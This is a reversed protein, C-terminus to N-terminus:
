IEDIGLIPYDVEEGAACFVVTNVDGIGAYNLQFTKQLEPAILTRATEIDEAAAVYESLAKYSLGRRLLAHASTPCSALVETLDSIAERHFHLMQRAKAREHIAAIRLRVLAPSSTANVQVLDALYRERAGLNRLPTTVTIGADISAQEAQKLANISTGPTINTRAKHAWKGMAGKVRKGSGSNKALGRLAAGVGTSLPTVSKTEAAHAIASDAAAKSRARRTAEDANDSVAENPLRLKPADMRLAATALAAALQRSMRETGFITQGEDDADNGNKQHRRGHVSCLPDLADIAASFATVADSYKDANALSLGVSFYLRAQFAEKNKASMSGLVTLATRYDTVAAEWDNGQYYSDARQALIDPANPTILLANTSDKISSTIDGTLRHAEARRTLFIPTDPSLRLATTYQNIAETYEGIYSYAQGLLDRVEPTNTGRSLAMKCDNIAGRAKGIALYSIARKYYAEGIKSNNTISDSLDEAAEIHQNQEQRTMGRILLAKARCRRNAIQLPTNTGYDVSHRHSILPEGGTSETTAAAPTAETPTASPATETPAEEGETAPTATATAAASIGLHKAEDPHLQPILELASIGLQYIATRSEGPTWLIEVSNGNDNGTNTAKTTTTVMGDEESAHATTYAPPIVEVEDHIHATSNILTSLLSDAEAFRQLKYLMCGAHYQAPVFSPWVLLANQYHHLAREFHGFMEYCLGLYAQIRATIMCLVRNPPITFTLPQEPWPKDKISSPVVTWPKPQSSTSLMKSRPAARGLNRAAPVKRMSKTGAGTSGSRVSETDSKDDGANGKPNEGTDGLGSGPKGERTQPRSNNGGENKKGKNPSAGGFRKRDTEIMTMDQERVADTYTDSDTVDDDGGVITSGSSGNVSGGTTGLFASSTAEGLAAAAEPPLQDFITNGGGGGGHRSRGGTTSMGGGSKTRNLSRGGSATGAAESAADGGISLLAEDADKASRRLEKRILAENLEAARLLDPLAKVPQGQALAIAGRHFLPSPDTAREEGGQTIALTVTEMANRFKGHHFEAWSRNDLCKAAFVPNSFSRESAATFIDISESYRGLECLSIGYSNIANASANDSSALKKLDNMAELTRGLKEYCTARLLRAKASHKEGPQISTTFENIAGTYDEMHMLITGRYYRYLPIFPPDANDLATSLDALADGYRKLKRLCLSRSVFYQWSRPEIRIAANLDYFALQNRGLGRYIQARAAYWRAIKPRIAISENILQLLRGVQKFEHLM